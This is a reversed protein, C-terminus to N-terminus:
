KYRENDKREKDDREKMGTTERESRMERSRQESVGGTRARRMSEILGAQREEKEDMEKQNERVYKVDGDVSKWGELREAEALKWLPFRRVKFCCMQRRVLTVIVYSGVLQVGDAYAFM